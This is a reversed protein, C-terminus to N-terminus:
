SEGYFRHELTIVIGNYKEALILTFNSNPGVLGAPGEGGIYM